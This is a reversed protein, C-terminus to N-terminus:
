PTGAAPNISPNQNPDSCIESYSACYTCPFMRDQGFFCITDEQEKDSSADCM